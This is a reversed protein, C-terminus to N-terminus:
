TCSEMIGEKGYSKEYSTLLNQVMSQKLFKKVEKYGKTDLVEQLDTVWNKVQLDLHTEFIQGVNM